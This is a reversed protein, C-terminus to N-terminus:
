RIGRRIVVLQNAFLQKMGRDSVLVLGNLIIADTKVASVALTTTTFLPAVDDATFVISARQIPPRNM